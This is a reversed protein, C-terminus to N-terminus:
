RKKKRSLIRGQEQRIDVEMGQRITDVVNKYMEMMMNVDALASHWDEINIGYAQSVVGMSVSHYGWNGKNVYLNDLLEQAELDGGEAATQTKLLPVLYLKMLEQTDLVPYTPLREESRVNIFKMDFRANQAVLLPNPFSEIWELFRDLVEQELGYEGDGDGYRTMSLIDVVSM